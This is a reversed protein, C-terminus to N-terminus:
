LVNRGDCFGGTGHSLRHWSVSLWPESPVSHGGELWDRVFDRNPYDSIGQRSGVAATTQGERGHGGLLALGLAVDRKLVGRDGMGWSRLRQGFSLNGEM